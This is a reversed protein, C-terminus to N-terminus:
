CSKRGLPSRKQGCKQVRDKKQEVPVSTGEGMRNGPGRRRRFWTQLMGKTKPQKRDGRVLLNKMGMVVMVVLVKVVLVKVVLVKVVVVKVVVVKVVVLLVAGRGLILAEHPQLRSWRGM